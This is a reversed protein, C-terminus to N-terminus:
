IEGNREMKRHQSDRYEKERGYYENTIKEKDKHNKFRGLQSNIKDLERCIGFDGRQAGKARSLGSQIDEHKRVAEATSKGREHKDFEKKIIINAM